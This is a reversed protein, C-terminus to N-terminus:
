ASAKGARGAAGGPSKKPSAPVQPAGATESTAAPGPKADAKKSELWAFVDAAVWRTCRTGMRVPAALEGAEVKSYLATRSLGTLTSVADMKLLTRDDLKAAKIQLLVSTSM